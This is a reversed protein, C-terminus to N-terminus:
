IFSGQALYDLIEEEPFQAFCVGFKQRQSLFSFFVCPRVTLAFELTRTCSDNIRTRRTTFSEGYM